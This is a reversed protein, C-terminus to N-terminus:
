INKNKASLKRLFAYYAEKIHAALGEPIQPEENHVVSEIKRPTMPEPKYTGARVASLVEKPDEAFFFPVVVKLNRDMICYAVQEDSDEMGFGGEDAFYRGDPYLTWDIACYGNKFGDWTHLGGFSAIRERLYHHGNALHALIQYDNIEDDDMLLHQNKDVLQRIIGREANLFFIEDRKGRFIAMGEGLYRGYSDKLETCDSATVNSTDEDISIKAPDIYKRHIQGM